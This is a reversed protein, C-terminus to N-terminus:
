CWTERLFFRRRVLSARATILFGLSATLILGTHIALPWLSIGGLSTGFLWIPGFFPFVFLPFLMQDGGARNVVDHVGIGTVSWFIIWCLGPGFFM